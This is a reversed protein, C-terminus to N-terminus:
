TKDYSYSNRVYQNLYRGVSNANLLDNYIHVSVSHYHHISGNNFEIELVQNEPDYGVSNVKSSSVSIRDV